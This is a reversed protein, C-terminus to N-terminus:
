FATLAGPALANVDGPNTIGWDGLTQQTSVFTQHMDTTRYNGGFDFRSEGGLDWGFDARLEKVRQRQTSRFTRGVQSGVDNIDLPGSAGLTI